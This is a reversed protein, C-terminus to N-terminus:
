IEFATLTVNSLTFTGGTVAKFALDVWLPVPTVQAKGTGTYNPTVQGGPLAHICFPVTLVGTLFTMTVLSGFQTGALAGGNSPAAGTGMSIQIAGGDGTTSQSMDGSVIVLIRGTSQPTISGALGLMVLAATNATGTPSASNLTIGNHPEFSM